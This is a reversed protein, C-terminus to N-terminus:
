TKPKILQSKILEAEREFPRLHPYADYTSKIRPHPNEAKFRRSAEACTQAFNM